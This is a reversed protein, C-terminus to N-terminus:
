PIAHLFFISANKTKLVKEEVILISKTKVSSNLKKLNCYMFMQSKDTINPIRIISDTACVTNSDINNYNRSVYFIYYQVIYELIYM